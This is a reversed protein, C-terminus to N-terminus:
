KIYYHSHIMRWEFHRQNRQKEKERERVRKNKWGIRDHQYNLRQRMVIQNQQRLPAFIKRQLMEVGDGTMQDRYVCARM